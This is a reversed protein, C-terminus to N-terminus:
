KSKEKMILNLKRQLQQFEISNNLLEMIKLVVMTKEKEFNLRVIRNHGLYLQAVLREDELIHLNRDVENYTSNVTRVLRMVNLEQKKSLTKLIKRRCRSRLIRSLNLTNTWRKFM